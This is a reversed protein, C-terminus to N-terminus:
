TETRPGGVFGVCRGLVGMVQTSGGGSFGGGNSVMFSLYSGLTSDYGNLCSRLVRRPRARRRGCLSFRIGPGTCGLTVCRRVGRLARGNVGRIGINRGSVCGFSCGRVPARYSTATDYVVIQGRGIVRLLIGRPVYEVRRCSFYYSCHSGSRSCVRVFDVNGSCVSGNSARGDGGSHPARFAAKGHLRRLTSHCRAGNRGVNVCGVVRCFTLSNRLSITAGANGGGHLRGRVSTCIRTRGSIVRMFSGLFLVVHGTIFSLAGSGRSGAGGGALLCSACRRGGGRISLIIGRTSFARSRSCFVFGNRGMGRRLRLKDLVGRPGVSSVM